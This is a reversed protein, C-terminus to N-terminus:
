RKLILFTFRQCFSLNALTLTIFPMVYVFLTVHTKHGSFRFFHKFFSPVVKHWCDKVKSSSFLDDSWCCFIQARVKHFVENSKFIGDPVLNKRTRIKATKERDAFILVLLIFNGCIKKRLFNVGSYFNYVFISTQLLFHWLYSPPYYM